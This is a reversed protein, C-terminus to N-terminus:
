DQSVSREETLPHLIAFFVGFIVGIFSLQTTPQTRLQFDLFTLIMKWRDSGVVFTSLIKLFTVAALVIKVSRV